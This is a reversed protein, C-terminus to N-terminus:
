NIKHFTTLSLKKEVEFVNVRQFGHKLYFHIAPQNKTGTTVVARQHKKKEVEKLLKEAIGQGFFSPDVFLRHLDIVQNELQYSLVGVINGEIYYAIFSENCVIFSELDEQLPPIERTGLYEAEVSYAIQQLTFVAQADAVNTLKIEKIM